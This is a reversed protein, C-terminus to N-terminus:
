RSCGPLCCRRRTTLQQNRLGYNRCHLSALYSECTKVGIAKAGHAIFKRCSLYSLRPKIPFGRTREANVCCRAYLGPGRRRRASVRFPTDVGWNKRGRPAISRRGAAFQEGKPSNLFVEHKSKMTYSGDNM